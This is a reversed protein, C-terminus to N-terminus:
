QRRGKPPPRVLSAIGERPLQQAGAWTDPHVVLLQKPGQVREFGAFNGRLHLARKGWVGISFVPIDVQDLEWFPSRRRHWEDDFPRSWMDPLFQVRNGGNIDHGLEQHNLLLVPNVWVIPFM